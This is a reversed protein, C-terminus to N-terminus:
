PQSERDQLLKERPLYIADAYGLLAMQQYSESINLTEGHAEALLLEALDVGAAASLGMGGPFRPNIEIAVPGLPTDILQLNIPGRFQLTKAITKAFELLAPNHVTEGTDIQGAVVTRRRRVVGTQWEGSVNLYADISYEEGEIWQQLIYNELPHEDRLRQLQERLAIKQQNHGGAGDRPKVVVPYCDIQDADQPLVTYPHSIQHAEFHQSLLWKDACIQISALPSALLQVGNIGHGEEYRESYQLLDAPRVPVIHTIRYLECANQVSQWYDPADNRPLLIREHAAYLGAAYPDVDAAIVLGGREELAGRLLRALTVKRGISPLLFNM